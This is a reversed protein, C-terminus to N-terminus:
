NDNTLLRLYTQVAKPGDPSLAKGEKVLDHRFYNM